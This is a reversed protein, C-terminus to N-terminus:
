NKRSPLNIIFRTGVGASSEVRIKGDHKDVIWKAIALGLGTGGEKRSRVKDGRYFRDFIRPLDEPAIGIGTDSVELQIGGSLRRGSVTIEGEELTYKLANDLLIVLLQHLREKDGILELNDDLAFSLKISKMDAMPLFQDAIERAVDRLNLPALHLEVQNADARALTLLSNVLRNMRVAERLVNAIRPSEQEITYEPHRLMLEANTKIVALPTRLEHSADAVFQQQKDWAARIPVLARRALYFGAGVIVLMGIVLGVSIIVLLRELLQVESDVISIVVVDKIIRSDGSNTVVTSNGATYPICLVRYNHEGTKVTQLTDPLADDVLIKLDEVVVMPPLPFLSIIEGQSDRLLLLVRPDFFEPRGLRNMHLAPHGNSIRFGEAQRHMSADIKDFIKDNAYGYLTAGFVAFIVLFVASNLATLKLQTRQFM